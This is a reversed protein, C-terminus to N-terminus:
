RHSEAQPMLLAAPLALRIAPELVTSWPVALHFLERARLNQPDDTKKGWWLNDMALSFPQYERADLGDNIDKCAQSSSRHEFTLGRGVGVEFKRRGPTRTKVGIVFKELRYKTQLLLGMIEQDQVSITTLLAAFFRAMAQLPVTAQVAISVLQRPDAKDSHVFRQIWALVDGDPVFQMAHHLQLTGNFLSGIARYEEQDYPSFQTHLPRAGFRTRVYLAPPPVM